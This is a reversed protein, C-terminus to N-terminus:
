KCDREVEPNSPIQIELPETEIVGTVLEGFKQLSKASESAEGPHNWATIALQFVHSRSTISGAPHRPNEYQAVVSADKSSEFAQGPALIVFDSGSSEADPKKPLDDKDSLIHDIFANYEYKGASLDNVNRAVREDFWIKGIEKDLILTKDTRNVYKGRFKLWVSFVEADGYCYRTSILEPVAKIPKDQATSLSAACTLFLPAIGLMLRAYIRKYLLRADSDPCLEAPSM